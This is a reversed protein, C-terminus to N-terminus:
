RAPSTLSPTTTRIGTTVFGGCHGTFTAASLGIQQAEARSDNDESEDLSLQIRSLGLTYDTVGSSSTVKLYYNGAKLGWDFSRQAPNGLNDAHILQLSSDYLSFGASAAGEDYDMTFTVLDKDSAIFTCYDQTDGDYGGAGLSGLWGSFPFGWLVSATAATENDELENYGPQSISLSLSYNTSGSVAHVLVYYVPDGESHM